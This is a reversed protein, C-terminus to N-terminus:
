VEDDEPFPDNGATVVLILAKPSVWTRKPDRMENGNAYRNWLVRVRAESVEVVEGIRAYSSHDRTNKVTQGVRFAM